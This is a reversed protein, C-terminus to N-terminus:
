EPLIEKSGFFASSRDPQCDIWVLVPFQGSSGDARRPVVRRRAPFQWGAMEVHDFCYHAARAWRAFVEPDYDHRRLCGNKDFYFAQQPCHTALSPPFRVVLKQWVEAAEAWESLSQIEVGEWALLWPMTFYNWSAYGAFYLLDLDDWWLQRRLSDFLPRPNRREAIIAGGATEMRLEEPTFIGRCGPRPYDELVTKQEHLYVRVVRARLGKWNWRAAFALGGFRLRVDLARHNQWLPLGGNKEFIEELFHHM